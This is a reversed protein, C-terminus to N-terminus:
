GKSVGLVRSLDQRARFTLSHGSQPWRGARDTRRARQHRSRVDVQLGEPYVEM